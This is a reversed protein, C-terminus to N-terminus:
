RAPALLEDRHAALFDAVSEPPRGTLDEVATSVIAFSASGPPPSPAPEDDGMPEPDQIEIPVGTVETTARAIDQPFVVAPGTIDYARYEHGDTALVAAAARACDERTVYAIGGVDTRVVWGDALMRSARAVIGNMYLSNRLMTWAMGSERIAQETRRHDGALPSDNRDLDVFSTYAIHRVGAAAAAAVANEHLGAREAGVGTDISILLMRDGGEYATALSEPQNFDGHRASAGLAVYRDLTEPTRSVLILREPEVGRALLEEVVLGGLQGSAGSVIITDPSSCASAVFAVVLLVCARSRM